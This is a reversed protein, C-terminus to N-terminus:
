KRAKREYRTFEAQWRLDGHLETRKIVCSGKEGTVRLAEGPRGLRDLVEDDVRPCQVDLAFGVCIAASGLTDFYAKM